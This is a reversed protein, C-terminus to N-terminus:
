ACNPTNNAWIHSLVCTSLSIERIVYGSSKGEGTVALCSLNFSLRGGPNLTQYLSHSLVVGLM